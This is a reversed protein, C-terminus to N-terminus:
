SRQFKREYYRLLAMLADYDVLDITNQEYYRAMDFPSWNSARKEMERVKGWFTQRLMHRAM